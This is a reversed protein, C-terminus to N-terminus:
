EKEKVIFRELEKLAKEINAPDPGGAQAMDPRGGGGGGIIKALNGVLKGAHLGKEKVLDPTLMLLLQGKGEKETALFILGSKIRDKIMDGVQRMENPDDVQVKQRIVKIGNIEEIKGVLDRAQDALSYSQAKKLKEQLSEKEKLLQGLRRELEEPKSKIKEAIQELRKEQKEFYDLTKLGTIAEIRRIGAAIGTESVIKIPGMEGTANLHTGGCLEQSYGPGINILRVRSQYKEEFIALAGRERAEGLSMYEAKVELNSLVRSNVEKEIAKIEEPELGKFHSFDFRLREPDVLSGAQQVHSGLVKRLSQHLLHTATHNRATAMRKERDVKVEVQDGVKIIGEKLKVEHFILKHYQHADQITGIIGRGNLSGTDGVQGGGEPYFPTRDFVLLGKEGSQLEKKSGESGIIALVRSKEELGEYGTFETDELKKSIKELETDKREGFGLTKHARDKRARDRQQEMESNFGEEDIDLGSEFLVDRTLDLPFGYTDYLKFAEKGPLTKQNTGKLTEIYGELIELGQEITEAFRDEEIKTIQAIYDAKEKVEPYADGMLDKVLPIMEHLFPDKLGLHRGFRSARRLIRRIVYGRGENSPLAGDAIAFSIARIHDAILRFAMTEKSESGTYKFGTLEELFKIYPLFLDTEYNSPTEQLVSAIRELGLGTDINKSPLTKYSGDEKKDFQTFVLNWLELFRDCDCGLTCESGCSFEEGRDWHIESCPGCPGLGIEWFNDAKGLFAIKEEPFGIEERWIDFAEQDEEYVSVWLRDPDMELRDTFFEWAWIIAEKKFYDGFSFNGLMELFTHHRLTRGVNEIDNTRICKQVTAMRPHPPKKSGDFFPKLPTMGANIWLLTPDDKPILPASEWILHDKESFFELFEKRIESGTLKKM